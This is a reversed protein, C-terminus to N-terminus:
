ELSKHRGKSDIFYSMWYKKDVHRAMMYALVRSVFKDDTVESFDWYVGSAFMRYADGYVEIKDDLIITVRKLMPMKSGDWGVDAIGSIREGYDSLRIQVNGRLREADILIASIEKRFTRVDVGLLTKTKAQKKTYFRMDQYPTIDTVLSDFGLSSYEVTVGKIELGIELCIENLMGWSIITEVYDDTDVVGYKDDDEDEADRFNSGKGAYLVMDGAARLFRSIYLM